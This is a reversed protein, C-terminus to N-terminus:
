KKYKEVKTTITSNDVWQHFLSWVTAHDLAEKKYRFQHAKGKEDVLTDKDGLYVPGSAVKIIWM